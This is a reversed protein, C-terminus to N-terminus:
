GRGPWPCSPVGRPVYIRASALDLPERGDLFCYTVFRVSTRRPTEEIFRDLDNAGLVTAWPPDSLMRRRVNEQAEPAMAYLSEAELYQFPMAWAHYGAYRGRGRLINDIAGAAAAREEVTGGVVLLAGSAASDAHPALSADIQSAVREYTGIVADFLEDGTTDHFVVGLTTLARLMAAGALLRLLVDCRPPTASELLELARGIPQRDGMLSRNARHRVARLAEGEIFDAAAAAEVDLATMPEHASRIVGPAALALRVALAGRADEEGIARLEAMFACAEREFREEEAAARGREEALRGELVARARTFCAVCISADLGRLAPGRAGCAACSQNGLVRIVRPEVVADFVALHAAAGPMEALVARAAALDGDRREYAQRLCGRCLVMGDGPREAECWTLSAERERAPRALVFGASHPMENCLACTARGGRRAEDRPEVARYAEHVSELVQARSVEDLRPRLTPLAAALARELDGWDWPEV